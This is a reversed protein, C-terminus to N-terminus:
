VMIRSLSFSVKDLFCGHGPFNEVFVRLSRLPRPVEGNPANRRMVTGM